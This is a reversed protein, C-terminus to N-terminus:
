KPLKPAPVEGEAAYLHKLDWRRIPRLLHIDSAKAIESVPVCKTVALNPYDEVIVKFYDSCAELVTVRVFAEDGERLHLHPIYDTM